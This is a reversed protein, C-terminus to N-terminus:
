MFKMYIYYVFRVIPILGIIEGFINLGFITENDLLKLFLLSSLIYYIIGIAIYIIM